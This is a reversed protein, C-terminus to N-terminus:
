TFLEPLQQQNAERVESTIVEIFYPADAVIPERLKATPRGKMLVLTSYM